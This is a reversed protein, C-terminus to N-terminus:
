RSGDGLTAFRRRAAVPRGAPRLMDSARLGLGRLPRWASSPVFFLM